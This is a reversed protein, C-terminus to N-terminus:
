ARRRTRRLGLLLLAVLPLGGTSGCGPNDNCAQVYGRADIADPCDPRAFLETADQVPLTFTTAAECSVAGESILMRTHFRDDAFFLLWRAGVRDGAGRPLTLTAGEVLGAASGRVTEVLFETRAGDVARISAELTGTTQAAIDTLCFCSVRKCSARANTGWLLAACLLVLATSKM